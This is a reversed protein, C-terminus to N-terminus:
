NRTEPGPKPNFVLSSVYLQFSRLLRLVLPL